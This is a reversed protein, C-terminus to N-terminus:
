WFFKLALQMQRSTRALTVPVGASSISGFGAAGLTAAPVNFQPTNLANFVEARLQFYRSETLRTNKLLSLDFQKTGPGDV